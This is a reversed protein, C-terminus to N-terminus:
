GDPPKCPADRLPKGGDGFIAGAGFFRVGIFVAEARTMDMGDELCIRRLERDAEDRWHRGLYGERMMQYLADHVLSARMFDPTDRTPGSPGDWAYGHRIWLAGDVGLTFMETEIPHEPRISVRTAYDNVLQYKYGARYRIRETM